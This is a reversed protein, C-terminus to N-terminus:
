KTYTVRLRVDNTDYDFKGYQTLGSGASGGLTIGRITNVHWSAPATVWKGATRAWQPTTFANADSSPASSPLSAAGSATITGLSATGGAGYYWSLNQLFVEVKKVAAGTLDSVITGGFVAASTRRYGGYTGHHLDDTVQSSGRWSRLGSATYTKTYTQVPTENNNTGGSIPTGGLTDFYGRNYNKTGLDELTFQVPYNSRGSWFIGRNATLNQFLSVFRVPGDRPGEFVASVTIYEALTKTIHFNAVNLTTRSPELYQLWVRVTDNAQTVAMMGSMTLRYMRGTRVQASIVGYGVDSTGARDSDGSSSLLGILGKPMADIMDTVSEGDVLLSSAAVEGRFSADGSSSIGAMLSGSTSYLNIEDSTPGGLSTTVVEGDDGASRVVEITADGVHVRPYATSNPSYVHGGSLTKGYLADVHIKPATIAGDEILVGGIGQRIEVRSISVSSSTTKYVQFRNLSYTNNFSAMMYGDGYTTSLVVYQGSNKLAVSVSNASTLGTGYVKVVYTENPMLPITLGEDQANKTLWLSSTGSLTQAGASYTWGSNSARVLGLPEDQLNPDPYLGDSNTVVLSKTSVSNVALKDATIAGDEILVGPTQKQIVIKSMKISTGSSANYSVKLGIRLSDMNAPVVYPTTSSVSGISTTDSSVLDVDSVWTGTGQRRQITLSVTGTSGSVFAKTFSGVIKEGPKVPIIMSDILWSTTSGNGNVVYGTGDAVFTTGSSVRYTQDFWLNGGDVLLKRTVLNDLFAQQAMLTNVVASGFEAGGTNVLKDVTLSGVKASTVALDAIQASGIAAEAIKLQTIAGDKITNSDLQRQSWASGGWEWSSIFNNGSRVYWLAGVPKGTGDGVVPLSSSITIRGNATSAMGSADNATSLAGLAQSMAGDATSQAASAAAAASNAANQAAVAATAADTAAKDTVVVWASGSWRKPTNSNGTTDIWLTTAKQMVVDPASSQILVDAKGNAIGSATAANSLASDATSQATAANSYASDATSQASSAASQAALATANASSANSNATSAATQAAQALTNATDAASQANSAANQANTAATAAATVRSDTLVVWASGDWEHLQGNTTNLWLNNVNCDDASTPASSSKVLRGSKSALTLVESDLSDVALQAAQATSQATAADIAAQAAAAQATAADAIGTMAETHAALADAKAQIADVSVQVLEAQAEELEASAVEIKEMQELLNDQAVSLGEKIAESSIESSVLQDGQVDVRGLLSDMKFVLDAVERRLAELDAPRVSTTGSSSSFQLTPISPESM